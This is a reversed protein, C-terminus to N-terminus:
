IRRAPIERTRAAVIEWRGRNKRLGFITVGRIKHARKEGRESLEISCQAVATGSRFFRIRKARIKLVSGKLAGRFAAAHGREIAKRGSWHVGGRTLYEADGAYLRAYSKVDGRNWAMEISRILSAIGAANESKPMGLGLNEPTDCLKQPKAGTASIWWGRAIHVV